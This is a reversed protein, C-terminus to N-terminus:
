TSCRRIAKIRFAWFDAPKSQNSRNQNPNTLKPHLPPHTHQMSVPTQPLSNSLLAPTLPRSGQVHPAAAYHHAMVILALRCLGFSPWAYCPIKISISENIIPLSTLGFVTQWQNNCQHGKPVVLMLDVRRPMNRNVTSWGVLEYKYKKWCLM